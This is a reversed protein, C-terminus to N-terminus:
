TSPWGNTATSRGGGGFAVASLDPRRDGELRGGRAGQQKWSSAARRIPAPAGSRTGGDPFGDSRRAIPGCTHPGGGGGRDSAQAVSKTVRSPHSWLDSRVRAVWRARPCASHTRPPCE